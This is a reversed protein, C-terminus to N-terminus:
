PNTLNTSPFLESKGLSRILVNAPTVPTITVQKTGTTGAYVAGLTIAGTAADYGAADIAAGDIALTTTAVVSNVIDAFTSRYAYDLIVQDSGNEFTATVNLPLVYFHLKAEAVLLSAPNRFRQRAPQYSWVPFQAGVYIPVEIQNVMFNSATLKRHCANGSLRNQGKQYPAGATEFSYDFEKWVGGDLKFFKRTELHNEFDICQAYKDGDAVADGNLRTTPPTYVGASAVVPQLVRTPAIFIRFFNDGNIIDEPTFTVNVASALNADQGDILATGAAVAVTVAAAAAASNAAALTWSPTFGSKIAAYPYYSLGGDRQTPYLDKYFRFGPTGMLQLKGVEINDASTVM